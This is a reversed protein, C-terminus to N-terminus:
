LSGSCEDLRSCSPELSKNLSRNGSISGGSNDLQRQLPVSSTNTSGGINGLQRQLLVSSTNMAISGGSNDLQRQLTGSSIDLFLSILLYYWFILMM